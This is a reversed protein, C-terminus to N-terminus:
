CIHMDAAMVVKFLFPRATICDGWWPLQHDFIKGIRDKLKLSTEGDSPCSHFRVANFALRGMDSM